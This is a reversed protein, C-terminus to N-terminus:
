RGSDHFLQFRNSHPTPPTSVFCPGMFTIDGLLVLLHCIRNLEANLPNICIVSSTGTWWVILAVFLMLWKWVWQEPTIYGSLSVLHLNSMIWPLIGNEKGRLFVLILNSTFANLLDSPNHCAVCFTHSRKKKEAAFLGPPCSIRLWELSTVYPAAKGGDNRRLLSLPALCLCLRIKPAFFFHSPVCLDNINHPWTVRSPIKM